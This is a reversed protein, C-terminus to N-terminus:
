LGSGFNAMAMMINFKENTERLRRTLTKGFSWLVKYGINTDREFLHLLDTNKIEFLRCDEHAIVHASRPMMEFLSMEGFFEARKLVALAEEGGSQIKSIRVCGSVILFLSDGPDGESCIREGSKYLRNRGIMIIEAMEDSSLDKFLSIQSLFEQNMM